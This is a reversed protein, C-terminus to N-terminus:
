RGGFEFESLIPGITRDDLCDNPRYTCRQLVGNEFSSFHLENEAPDRDLVNDRM